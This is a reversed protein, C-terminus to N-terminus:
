VFERLTVQQDVASIDTARYATIRGEQSQKVDACRFRVPSGPEPLWNADILHKQRFFIREASINSIFGIGDGSHWQKVRGYCWGDESPLSVYQAATKLDGLFLEPNDRWHRNQVEKAYENKELVPLMHRLTSGDRFCRTLQGSYTFNSRAQVHKVDVQLIYAEKRYTLTGGDESLTEECQGFGYGKALRDLMMQIGAAGPKGSRSSPALPGRFYLPPGRRPYLPMGLEKETRAMDMVIHAAAAVADACEHGVMSTDPNLEIDGSVTRGIELRLKWNRRQIEQTVATMLDGHPDLATHGFLELWAQQAAARESEPVSPHQANM